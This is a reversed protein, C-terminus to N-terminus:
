CGRRRSSRPRAATCGPSPPACCAPTGGCAARGAACRSARGADAASTDLRARTFHSCMAEPLPGEEAVSVAPRSVVVSIPRSVPTSVSGRWASSFPRSRTEVHAVVVAACLHPGRRHEARAAPAGLAALPAGRVGDALPPRPRRGGQRELPAGAGGIRAGRRRLPRGGRALPASRRLPRRRGRHAASFDALAFFFAAARTAPLLGM